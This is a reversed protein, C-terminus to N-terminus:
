GLGVLPLADKAELLPLVKNKFGLIGLFTAM